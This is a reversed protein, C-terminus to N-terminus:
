IMLSIGSVLLLGLRIKRSQGEDIRAYLRLGLWADLLAPSM